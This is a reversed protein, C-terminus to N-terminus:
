PLPEAACWAATVPSVTPSVRLSTTPTASSMKMLVMDVTALVSETTNLFKVSILYFYKNSLMAAGSQKFATRLRKYIDTYFIPGDIGDTTEAFTVRLINFKMRCPNIIIVTM